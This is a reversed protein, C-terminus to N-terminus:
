LVRDDEVVVLVIGVRPAKLCFLENVLWGTIIFGFTPKGDLDQSQLLGIIRRRICMMEFHITLTLELNCTTLHLTGM